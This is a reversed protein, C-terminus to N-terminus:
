RGHPRPRGASGRASTRASPPNRWVLGVVVGIPALLGAVSLVLTSILVLPTQEDLHSLYAAMFWLVWPIATALFYFLVPRDYQYAVPDIIAPTGAPPPSEGHWEMLHELYCHLISASNPEVCKGRRHQSATPSVNCGCCRRRSICNVWAM